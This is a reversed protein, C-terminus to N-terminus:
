GCQVDGIAHASFNAAKARVDGVRRWEVSLDGAFGEVLFTFSNSGRAAFTVPGPAAVESNGEDMVRVLARGQTMDASVAVAAYQCDPQVMQNAMDSVPAFRTNNTSAAEDTWWTTQVTVTSDGSGSAAVVAAPVALAAFAILVAANRGTRPLRRDHGHGNANTLRTRFSELM